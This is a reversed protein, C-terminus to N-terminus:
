PWTFPMQGLPRAHRSLACWNPTFPVIRLASMQVFLGTGDSNTPIQSRFLAMKDQAFREVISAGLLKSFGYLVVSGITNYCLCLPFGVRM